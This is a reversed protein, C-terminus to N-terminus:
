APRVARVPWRGRPAHPCPRVSKAAKELFHTDTALYGDHIAQMANAAFSPQRSIEVHLHKKAYQAAEVGGHGDYVGFFSQPPLDQAM